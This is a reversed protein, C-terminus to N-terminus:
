TSSRTPKSSRITDAMARRAVITTLAAKTILIIRYRLPPKSRLSARWFRSCLFLLAYKAGIEVAERM